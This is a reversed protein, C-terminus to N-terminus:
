GVPFHPGGAFSANASIALTVDPIAAPKNIEAKAQPNQDNTSPFSAGGGAMPVRRHTASTNCNQLTTEMPMYKRPVNL